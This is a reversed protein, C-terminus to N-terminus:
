MLGVLTTSATLALSHCGQLDTSYRKRRCRPAGLIVRILVTIVVAAPTALWFNLGHISLLAASYAGISALWILLVVLLDGLIQALLKTPRHAYLTM